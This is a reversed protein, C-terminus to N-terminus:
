AEAEHVIRYLRAASEAPMEMRVRHLRAADRDNGAGRYEEELKALAAYMKVTQATESQEYTM